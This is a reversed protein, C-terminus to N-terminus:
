ERTMLGTSTKNHALYAALAEAESCGMAVHVKEPDWMHPRAYAHNPNWQVGNIVGSYYSRAIGKLYKNQRIKRPDLNREVKPLTQGQQIMLWYVDRPRLTPRDKLRPYKKPDYPDHEPRSYWGVVIYTETNVTM